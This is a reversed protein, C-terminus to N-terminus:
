GARGLRERILQTLRHEAGLKRTRIDLAKEMVSRAEDIQGLRVLTEGLASLASALSTGDPDELLRRNVEEGIVVLAQDFLGAERLRVGEQLSIDAIRALGVRVYPHNVGLSRTHIEVAEHLLQNAKTLNGQRALWLGLNGASIATDPDSPGLSLISSRHALELLQGAEATADPEDQRMLAMALNNQSTATDPHNPGLHRIRSALAERFVAIGEPERVEGMLSQGLNDLTALYHPHGEPLVGSRIKLCERFSAQAGMWDEQALQENGLNNLRLALSVSDGGRARDVALSLLRLSFGSPCGASDLLGALRLALKGNDLGSAGSNAESEWAPWITEYRPLLFDKFDIAPGDTAHAHVKLWYELVESEPRNELLNDLRFPSLLVSELDAWRGSRSLQWAHENASRADLSQNLWWDALRAHAEVMQGAGSLYRDQVAKSADDHTLRILGGSEALMSELALRAKAWELPKLGCVALLETEALGDRSCHLSALIDVMSIEPLDSEVRELVRELLDDLSEASLFRDLCAVLTEHTASLSLEDVLATLFKPNRASPHQLIRGLTAEPLRKRHSDLRNVAILRSAQESLQVLPMTQWGRSACAALHEQNRTCVILRIGPPLYDPLWPLHDPSMLRELDDLIILSFRSPGGEGSNLTTASLKALAEPLGEQSEETPRDEQGPEKGLLGDMWALWRGLLNSLERAEGSAGCQHIFAPHDVEGGMRAAHFAALLSSAGDGSIGTLVLGRTAAGAQDASESASTCWADLWGLEEQRGQLGHARSECYNTHDELQRQRPSPTESEPFEADILKWGDELVLEACSEPNPYDERVAFGSRRIREKLSDLRLAEAPSESRFDPGRGESWQPSRFYFLARGAMDPNNLVGHLIEMETVSAGSELRLLWPQSEFLHRPVQGPEPIWGYREGLLGLFFPRSRDIEALCIPLTEGQASEEETIGWRLDIGVIEVRRDRARRRLEPFVQRTLLDRERGFDRFTSSIFIRVTRNAM